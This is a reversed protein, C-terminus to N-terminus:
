DKKRSLHGSFYPFDAELQLKEKEERATREWYSVNEIVGKRSFLASGQAVEDCDEGLCPTHKSTGDASAICKDRNLLSM